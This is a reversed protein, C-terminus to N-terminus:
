IKYDANPTSQSFFIKLQTLGKGSNPNIKTYRTFNKLM